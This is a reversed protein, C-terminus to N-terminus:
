HLAKEIDKIEGRLEKEATQLMLTLDDRLKQEEPNLGPKQDLREIRKTIDLKLWNFHERLKLFADRTEKRARKVKFNFLYIIVAAILITLFTLVLTISKYDMLWQGIAAGALTVQLIKEQSHNSKAGRADQSFASLFYHGPRFLQDTSFSWEGQEDAKIEWNAVVQRSSFDSRSFTLRVRSSPAALGELYFKEAGAQYNQPWVLIEPTTLPAINFSLSTERFNGAGDFARVKLIHEGPREMFISFPSAASPAVAPLTKGDLEPEFRDIGSLEDQAIFYFELNPNTPDGKNDLAIDGSTPATTDIKTKFYHVEGWNEGEKFQLHFYWIGDKVQSFSRQQTLNDTENVPVPWPNLDFGWKLAKVASPNQWQFVPNSNNYWQSSKPHTPSTILTSEILPSEMAVGYASHQELITFTAARTGKLADSGRSDAALVQPNKFFLIAQGSQKAKFVIGFLTGTGRLGQGTVGGQFTIQGLNNDFAPEKPWLKFVSNEKVLGEVTLIDQPFIIEAAASNCWFGNNYLRVWVVFEEGKDYTKKEPSFFLVAGKEELGGEIKQAKIEWVLFATLFMILMTVAILWWQRPTQQFAFM